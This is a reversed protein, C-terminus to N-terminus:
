DYIDSFEIHTKESNDNEYSVKLEQKPTNELAVNPLKVLFVSGSKGTSEVYVDGNHLSIISKVLALGIGSGEKKRKLSKDTQVFREFVVDKLEEPIGIGTDKVRIYVYSLDFDIDVSINGGEKTFKISNSILNLIVREINEPSCKIILEEVSTDFTINLNKAKVYPITSLTIDEVLSVIDHNVFDLGVSKTDYKSVDIINNVLRLIRFCNQKITNSYKHYYKHLENNNQKENLLQICSYIINIPTRLEHSMNAFFETRIKNYEKIENYKETIKNLKQTVEINRCVLIYGKLERNSDYVKKAITEIPIKKSDKVKISNRVITNKLDNNDTFKIIDDKKFDVILESYKKGLVDELKCNINKLSSENVYEIVGYKDIHVIFDLTNESITNLREESVRLKENTNYEKTVDIYSYLDVYSEQLIIRQVEIKIHKNENDTIVGSYKGVNILEKLILHNNFCKAFNESKELSCYQKELSLNEKCYRLRVLENAYLVKRNDSLLVFNNNPNNEVFKYFINLNFKLEESENIKKVTEHYFGIIILCGSIIGLMINIGSAYDYSFGTRVVYFKKIALVNLSLAIFFCINNKKSNFTIKYINYTVLIIFVTVLLQLINGGKIVLLKNAWIEMLVELLADILLIGSSIYIYKIKNKLIIKSFKNDKNIFMLYDIVFFIFNLVIFISIYNKRIYEFFYNNYLYEITILIYGHAVLFIVDKKYIYYFIYMSAISIMSVAFLIGRLIYIRQWTFQFNCQGILSIELIIMLNIALIIIINSNNIKNNLLM